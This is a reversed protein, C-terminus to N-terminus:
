PCVNTARLFIEAILYAANVLAVVVVLLKKTITTRPDYDTKRRGLGPYTRSLPTGKSGRREPPDRPGNGVSSM